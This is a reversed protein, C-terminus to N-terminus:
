GRARALDVCLGLDAVAGRLDLTMLRIGTFDTGRLDSGRLSVDTMQAGSFSAERLDCDLFTCGFLNAATFSVGRLDQKKFTVRSLGTYSWDGRNSPWAEATPAM